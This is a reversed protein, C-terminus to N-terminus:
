GATLPLRGLGGRDRAVFICKPPDPPPPPSEEDDDEEDVATRSLM